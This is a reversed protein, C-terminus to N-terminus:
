NENRLNKPVILAIITFLELRGFLMLACFLLKSLDSFGSFTHTPGVFGFGPGVNGLTTAVASAASILDINELSVLITGVVFLLMYLAYFSYISATIDSSLAKNQIKIPVVARPHFIKLIERKILKLLVLIRVVKIGGSTSGASGGIFLLLFLIGKSFTPWKDFDTTAYGTTSMISSVNFLADRFSIGANANSTLFVNTGILLTAGFLILSYLRLEENKLVNRWKGKYMAFYLSFNAGCLIMFFAIVLDIYTSDFAGVSANRTSFGGTGVTGFTHLAADFWSMGGFLLLVFEIVTFSLYTIYLIKATDKLRPVIKDSVPGPSEAKFLQFGGVGLSPLLALTFVLIGMGGIWHTFSRWFLIGRPLVEIDDIITAGTTTLGSITEFLADVVSPISGSLVFPLAGFVSSLLWGWAVISLGEKTKIRKNATKVRTLLFGTLATIIISYFFASKDSQDYYLAILQSPVMLAAEFLLLLGVIKIVISYNM